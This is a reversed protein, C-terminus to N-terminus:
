ASEQLQLTQIEVDKEQPVGERDRAFGASITGKGKEPTIARCAPSPGM